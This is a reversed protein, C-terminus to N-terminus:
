FMLMHEPSSLFDVGHNYFEFHYSTPVRCCPIEEGLIRSNNGERTTFVHGRACLYESPTASM